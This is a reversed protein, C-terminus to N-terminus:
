RAVVVVFVVVVVVVLRTEVRVAGRACRARRHRRVVCWARDIGDM